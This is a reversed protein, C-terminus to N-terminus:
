AVVEGEVSHVKLVFKDHFNLQHVGRFVANGGEKGHTLTVKCVLDELVERDLGLVEEVREQLVRGNLEQRLGEPHVAREDQFLDARGQVKELTGLHKLLLM